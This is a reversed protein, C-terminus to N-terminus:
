AWRQLMGAIALRRLGGAGGAGGAVGCTPLRGDWGPKKSTSATRHIAAPMKSSTLSCAAHFNIGPITNM